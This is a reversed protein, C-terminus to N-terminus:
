GRFLLQYRHTFHGHPYPHLYGLVFGGVASKAHEVVGDAIRIPHFNPYFRQHCSEGTPQQHCPKSDASQHHRWRPTPAIIYRIRLANSYNITADGAHIGFSYGQNLYLPSGGVPSGFAVIPNQFAIRGTINTELASNTADFHYLTNTWQNGPFLNTANGGTAALPVGTQFNLPIVFSQFDPATSTGRVYRKSADFTSQPSILITATNPNLPDTADIQYNTGSNLTVTVTENSTSFSGPIGQLPIRLYNANNTVTNPITVSNTIQVYDVGNSATGSITYNVTLPTLTPPIRGLLFLGVNGDLSATQGAAYVSVSASGYEFAGIDPAGVRMFGRQDYQPAATSDAANIAPSGALIPITPTPGGNDGIVDSLDPNTSSHSGTGNLTISSDDSINEGGDVFTGSGNGGYGSGGALISNKLTFTGNTRVVNAGTFTGNTGDAGSPLGGYGGEGAFTADLSLTCNTLGIQNTSYIGGGYANGGAGGTGGVTGGSGDGGDGGIAQNEAFTCNIIANTGVNCIAGGYGNAGKPGATNGSAGTTQGNNGGSGGFAGQSFFTSNWVTAKRYIYLAGGFGNTGAGGVGNAGESSNALGGNGGDGGQGGVVEDDNFYSNTITMSVNNTNANFIAGGKAMGGIGGNAGTGPTGTTTNGGNGGSGGTGGIAANNDFIGNNVTLTGQNYIVGGSINGGATGATGNGATGSAVNIGNAGNTGNLGLAYNNTFTCNNIVLTGQNYIAGGGNTVAPAILVDNVTFNVFSDAVTLNNLTLTAGTSVNFMQGGWGSWGDLTIHHGTADIVTNTTISDSESYPKYIVGDCAITVTGGGALAADLDLWNLNTVTGSAHGILPLLLLFAPIIGGWLWNPLFFGSRSTETSKKM